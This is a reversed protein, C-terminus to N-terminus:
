ESTAKWSSELNPLFIFLLWSAAFSPLYHAPCNNDCHTLYTVILSRFFKRVEIPISGRGRVIWVLMMVVLGGLVSISDCKGRGLIFCTSM